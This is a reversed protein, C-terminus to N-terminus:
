YVFEAGVYGWGTGWHTVGLVYLDLRESYLIIENTSRKLREATGEDILYYQYIENERTEEADEEECPEGDADFYETLEGNEINDFLLEDVNPIENCLLLASEPYFIQSYNCRVTVGQLEEYPNEVKTLTHYDKIHKNHEIYQETYVKGNEDKYFNDAYFQKKEM